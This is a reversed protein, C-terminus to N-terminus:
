RKLAAFLGASILVVVLQLTWPTGVVATAGVVLSKLAYYIGKGLLMAAVMAVTQSLWRNPTHVQRSLWPFVAVVTVLEAMMCLARWPTPVGVILMPVIPLLVALLFANRHSDVVIMGALLLLLMPNFQVLWPAAVHIWPLLCVGALLLTDASLTRWLSKRLTLPKPTMFM